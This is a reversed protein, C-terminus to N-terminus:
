EKAAHGYHTKWAKVVEFLPFGVYSRAFILGLIYQGRQHLKKNKLSHCIDLAMSWLWVFLDILISSLTM